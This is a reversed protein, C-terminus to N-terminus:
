GQDSGDEQEGFVKGCWCCVDQTWSCNCHHGCDFKSAPCQEVGLEGCSWCDPDVKQCESCGSCLEWHDCEHCYIIGNGDCVDDLLHSSCHETM